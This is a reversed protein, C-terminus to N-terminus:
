GNNKISNQKDTKLEKGEIKAWREEDNAEWMGRLTGM